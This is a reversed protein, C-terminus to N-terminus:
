SPSDADNYRPHFRHERLQKDRLRRHQAPKQPTNPSSKSTRMETPEGPGASEPATEAGSAEAGQPASTPYPSRVRCSAASNRGTSMEEQMTPAERHPDYM